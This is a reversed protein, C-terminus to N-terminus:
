SKVEETYHKCDHLHRWENVLESYVDVDPNVEKECIVCIFSKAEEQKMANRMGKSRKVDAKAKISIDRWLRWGIYACIALCLLLILVREAPNM